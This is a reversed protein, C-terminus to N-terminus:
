SRVELKKSEKTLPIALGAWGVTSVLAVIPYALISISGLALTFGSVVAGVAGSSFRYMFADIVIKARYRADYSLPIYLIEKSARFISYDLSKFILLSSAAVFLVPHILMAICAALHILPLGIHIWRLPFIRLAIPAGILQLLFASGNTYSWFAGLYATRADKTAISLELLGYFKLTFMTAIIQTIGIIIALFLLVRTKKFLSLNIHGQLGGQEDPSPQPEGVLAYATYSLIAAPILAGAAFLLLQETGISEALKHVLYGALIPGLSAASTIPGNYLKAQDSKLTSNILSWYQEIILVIYIQRYIYLIATAARYEQIILMYCALFMCASFLSTALLTYMAGFKSLMRGYIYIYLALVPPMAAMVYPVNASGYANIFLSSSVSRVFEYGGVLFTGAMALSAIALITKKNAAANTM